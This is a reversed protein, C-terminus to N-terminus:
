VAHRLSRQKIIQTGYAMPFSWGRRLATRDVPFCQQANAV